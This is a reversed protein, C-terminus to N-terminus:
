RTLWYCFPKGGPFGSRHPQTTYKMENNPKHLMMIKM